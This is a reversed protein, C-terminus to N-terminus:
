RYTNWTHILDQMPKNELDKLTDLRSQSNSYINNVERYVVTKQENIIQLNDLRERIGADLAKMKTDIVGDMYNRQAELLREVKVYGAYALLLIILFVVVWFLVRAVELQPFLRSLWGANLKPLKPLEPLNINSSTM